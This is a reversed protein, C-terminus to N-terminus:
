IFSQKSNYEWVVILRREPLHLLRYRFQTLILLIVKPSLFFTGTVILSHERHNWKKVEQSSM